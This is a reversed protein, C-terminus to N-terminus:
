GYVKKLHKLWATNFAATGIRVPSGILLMLISGFKVFSKAFSSMTHMLFMHLLLIFKKYFSIDSSVGKTSM